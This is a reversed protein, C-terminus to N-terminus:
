PTCHPTYKYDISLLIGSLAYTKYTYCLYSGVDTCSLSTQLIKYHCENHPSWNKIWTGTKMWKFTTTPPETGYDVVPYWYGLDGTQSYSPAGENCGAECKYCTGDARVLNPILLAAVMFSSLLSAKMLKDSGSTSTRM